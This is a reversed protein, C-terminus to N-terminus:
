YRGAFAPECAECDDLCAKVIIGPTPISSKFSFELEGIVEKTVKGSKDLVGQEVLDKNVAELAERRTKADLPERNVSLSSFTNGRIASVAALQPENVRRAQLVDLKESNALLGSPIATFNPDAAIPRAVVASDGAPDIVRTRVARVSLKVTQVKNIQYFLYSVAHCRNPNHFVRSSSELQSESEGEAHTRTSVEGVSVSSSERTAEMSRNHSSEAHVNLERFFDRTSSANYEGSVSVSPGFLLAGLPSNTGGSSSSSGQSTSSSGGRDTRELDSMYSDFSSMYFQEEAAREHRYSLQSETDFTFRSRRDLTFLRVREQPLLTTSYVLNGLQLPGSCREFRIHLSVEVPIRQQGVNAFHTLRYVFDLYDCKKGEPIEPCCPPNKVTM